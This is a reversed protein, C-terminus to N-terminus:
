EATVPIQHTRNPLDCLDGIGPQRNITKRLLASDARRDRAPNDRRLKAFSKLEYRRM